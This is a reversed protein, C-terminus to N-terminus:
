PIVLTQGVHLNTAGSLQNADMIKPYKSASGYFKRAIKGPTDGAQVTYTRGGSNSTTEVPASTPASEPRKLLEAIRRNQDIIYTKLRENLKRLDRNEEALAAAPLAPLPEGSLKRLLKARVLRRYGEVTERDPANEPVLRLYEDYHYLAAAPNELVEDYLGALALHGGPSDPNKQLFRRFYSEAEVPNGDQRLQKGKLFLPNHEAAGNRNCGSGCLLGAALAACFGLTLTKRVTAGDM